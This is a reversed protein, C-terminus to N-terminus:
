VLGGFIWTGRLKELSTLCALPLSIIEWYDWATGYLLQPLSVSHSLTMYLAGGVLQIPVDTCYSEFTLGFLTPTAADFKSYFFPTTTPPPPIM